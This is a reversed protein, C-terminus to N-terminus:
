GDNNKLIAKDHGADRGARLSEWLPHGKMFDYTEDAMGAILLTRYREAYAPEPKKFTMHRYLPSETFATISDAHDLLAKMAEAAADADKRWVALDFAAGTANFIGMDYAGALASEAAALTEALADDGDGMALLRLHTLAMRSLQYNSFLIEEYNRCAEETKGTKELIQAEKMRREPDEKALYELFSAAGDYDERRCYDQFLSEAAMKRVSAEEATLCQEFWRLIKGHRREHEETREPESTETMHLRAQLMVAAQCILRNCSPYEQITAEVSAFVEGFDREELDRGLRRIYDDIEGDTLTERYSLLTDTSIGLLRAIPALLAIDPQSSNREWKNVASATVGLREAVAEQTMGAERRYQRIVDGIM